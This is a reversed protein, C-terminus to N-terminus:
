VVNFAMAAIRIVPAVPLCPPETILFRSEWFAGKSIRATVRLAWDEEARFSACFDGLILMTSPSRSSGAAMNLAALLLVELGIQPTKLTCTPSDEEGSEIRYLFHVALGFM